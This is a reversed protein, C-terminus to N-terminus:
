LYALKRITRGMSAETEEKEPNNIILREINTGISTGAMGVESLRPSSSINASRGISNQRASVAANGHMIDALAMSGDRNLAELAEAGLSDASAKRIIFEGPQLMAPVTDRGQPRFLDSIRRVSGGNSFYQPIFGGMHRGIRVAREGASVGASFSGTIFRFVNGVAAAVMGPLKFAWGVITSSWEALKAAPGQLGNWLGRAWGAVRHPLMLFWSAFKALQQNLWGGPGTINQWMNGVWAVVRAPLARFWAQLEGLRTNLWSAATALGNWLNLGWSLVKGPLSLFWATIETLREGLWQGATKLGTWINLALTAVKGPLSLLWNIFIVLQEGLWDGINQMHGWLKGVQYGVQYPLNLLWALFTQWQEDLWTGIGESGNWLEDLWTGVRGPLEALWEQFNEWQEGLWNGIEQAGGWLDALWEGVKGPLEAFWDGIIGWGAEVNGIFMDWQESLTEGLNGFDMFGDGFTFFDAVASSTNAVGLLYDRLPGDPLADSIGEWLMAGLNGAGGLGGLSQWVNGDIGNMAGFQLGALGGALMGLPGFMSGLGVGSLLGQLADAGMGESETTFLDVAGIGGFIGGLLKGAGKLWVPMKFNKLKTLFASFGGPATLGAIGGLAKGLNSFIAVLGPIGALRILMGLLATLGTFKGVFVLGALFGLFTTFAEIFPRMAPNNAIKSFQDFLDEIINLFQAFGDAGGNSLFGDITEVISTLADIFSEGIGSEQLTDLINGIAPGLEDRITKVINMMSDINGQDSAEEAFWSFFDGFLGNIESLLPQIDRLYEAFASTPDKAAETAEVWGQTTKLLGDAMWDALPAMATTLNSISVAVNKTIDWWKSIRDGVDELWATLSGDDRATSVLNALAEAGASFSDAFRQMLPSAAMTLDRFMDLLSLFGDGFKTTLDESTDAFEEIDDQWEKGSVQNLAKSFFKGVADATKGLLTELPGLLNNLEKIDGKFQSFMREQTERKLAKWGDRMEFIDKVFQQASPSLSEFPDEEEVGMQEKYATYAEGVGKFSMITAAAAAAIGSLGPALVLLGSALSGIQTVLAAAGIGLAGIGAVLPNILAVLSAIIPVLAIFPPMLRPRWNGIATLSKHFGEASRRARNFWRLTRERERDRDRDPGENRHRGGGNNVHRGGGGGDVGNGDSGDGNLGFRSPGSGNGGIIRDFLIDAPSRVARQEYPIQQQAAHFREMANAQREAASTTQYYTRLNRQAIRDYTRTAETLSGQQKTLKATEQRHDIIADIGSIRVDRVKGLATANDDLADTNEIIEGTDTNVASTHLKLDRQARTRAREVKQQGAASDKNNKAEQQRLKELEKRADRAARILQDFDAIARYRVKTDREAM